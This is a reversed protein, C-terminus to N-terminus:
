RDYIAEKSPQHYDQGTRERPSYYRAMRVLHERLRERTSLKRPRFIESATPQERNRTVADRLAAKDDTFIIAKQKARSAEVYFGERSSAPHSLSSQGILVTDVTKGQSAHSTVVYGHAIHGFERSIVWGNDVVINGEKTFGTVTFLSGTNLRHKGDMTEGRATVRLRDGAALELTTPRYVQFRNALALPVPGNGAILRTGSRFGKANQFFQLM